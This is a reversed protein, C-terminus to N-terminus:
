QRSRSTSSQFKLEFDRSSAEWKEKEEKMNDYLRQSERLARDRDATMQRSSYLESLAIRELKTFSGLCHAFGTTTPSAPSLTGTRM